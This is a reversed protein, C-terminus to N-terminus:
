GFEGEILFTLQSKPVFSIGLLRLLETLLVIIETHIIGVICVGSLIAIISVVLRM